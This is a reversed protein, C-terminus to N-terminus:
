ADADDLWELAQLLRIADPDIAMVRKPRDDGIRILTHGTAASFPM